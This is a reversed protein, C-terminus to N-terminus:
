SNFNGAPVAERWALEVCRFAAVSALSEIRSRRNRSSVHHEIWAWERQEAAFRLGQFERL